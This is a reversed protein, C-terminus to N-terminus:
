DLGWVLPALHAKLQTASTDTHRSMVMMMVMMVMTKSMLFVRM